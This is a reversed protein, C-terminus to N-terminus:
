TSDEPTATGRITVISALSTSSNVPKTRRHKKKIRALSSFFFTCAISFFHSELSFDRASVYPGRSLAATIPRTPDLNRTHSAVSGFYDETGTLQSRPENAISWMIVSPRNKDRRILESLSTQHRTLLEPSYNEVDVAPCEDVILIGQRDAMELVEDSYPYHSTRYSNAGVWKLLEYDRTMTVLDLGRGRIPSDEHRGFGRLYIPKENLLVSTNTWRLSRIGIPLRYVDHKTSNWGLM